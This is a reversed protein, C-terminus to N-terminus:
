QILGPFLGVDGHIRTLKKVRQAVVPVGAVDLNIPNGESHERLLARQLSYPAKCGAGDM